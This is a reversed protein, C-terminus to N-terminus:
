RRYQFCRHAIDHRVQDVGPTPVLHFRHHDRALHQHAVRISDAGLHQDGIFGGHARLRLGLRLLDRPAHSGVRHVFAHRQQLRHLYPM